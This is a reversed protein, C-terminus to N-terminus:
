IPDKAIEFGLLLIDTAFNAYLSIPYEILVDSVPLHQIM